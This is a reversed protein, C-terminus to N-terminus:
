SQWAETGQCHPEGIRGIVQAAPSAMLGFEQAPMKGSKQESVLGSGAKAACLWTM